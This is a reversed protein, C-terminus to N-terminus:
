PQWAPRRRRPASSLTFCRRTSTTSAPFPSRASFSRRTPSWSATMTSGSSPEREQRRSRNVRSRATTGRPTPRISQASPSPTRRSTTATFRGRATTGPPIAAAAGPLTAAASLSTAATGLSTVSTQWFSAAVSASVGREFSAPFTGNFQATGNVASQPMAAAARLDADAFGGAPDVDTAGGADGSLSNQRAVRWM